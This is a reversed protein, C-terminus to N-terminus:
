TNNVTSAESPQVMASGMALTVLALQLHKKGVHLIKM